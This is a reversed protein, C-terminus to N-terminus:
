PARDRRQESALLFALRSRRHIGLKRYIREVHSGVTRPSLSLATAVEPNTAGEAILRAVELERPSLCQSPPASPAPVCAV